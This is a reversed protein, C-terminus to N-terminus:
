RQEQCQNENRLRIADYTRMTINLEKSQTIEFRRLDLTFSFPRVELDSKSLSRSRRLGRWLGIPKHENSCFGLQNNTTIQEKSCFKRPCISFPFSFDISPKEKEKRQVFIKSLWARIRKKSWKISLLYEISPNRFINILDNMNFDLSYDLFPSRYELLAFSVFMNFIQQKSPNKKKKIKIGYPFFLLDISNVENAVRQRAHMDSSTIRCVCVTNRLGWSPHKTYYSYILDYDVLCVVQHDIRDYDM